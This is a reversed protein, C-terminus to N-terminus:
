AHTKKFARINALFKKYRARNMVFQKHTGVGIKSKGCFAELRCIVVPPKVSEIAARIIIMKGLSAPALHRASVEIGVADEGPELYPQLLTRSANEMARVMAWTSYVPHDVKGKMYPRMWAAARERYVAPQARAIELKM